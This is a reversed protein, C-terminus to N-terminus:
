RKKRAKKKARKTEAVNEYLLSDKSSMAQPRYHGVLRPNIIVQKDVLSIKKTKKLPKKTKGLPTYSLWTNWGLGSKKTLTSAEIEDGEVMLNIDYDIEPGIFLRVIDTLESYIQEGPLLTDFQKATLPGVHLRIKGEQDWVKDGLMAGKGLINWRGKKSGISTQDREQIRRWRGVCQETSIAFDFYHSLIQSLAQASHPRQWFLGAFEFLSRDPLDLRNQTHKQELGLYSRLAMAQPSKDPTLPSLGIIYQKRTRHLISILRHNFIDLFDRLSSDGSRERQIIMEAYAYPLPGPLGAIGMFNVQMQPPDDPRPVYHPNHKYAARGTTDLSYIDSALSEFFIRSKFKATNGEV